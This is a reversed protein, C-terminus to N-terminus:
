VNRRCQTITLSLSLLVKKRTQTEERKLLNFLLGSCSDSLQAKDYKFNHKLAQSKVQFGLTFFVVPKEM